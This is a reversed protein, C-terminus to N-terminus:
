PRAAICGASSAVGFEHNLQDLIRNTEEDRTFDTSQLRGGLGYIMSRIGKHIPTFLDETAAM